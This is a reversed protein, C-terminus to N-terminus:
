FLGVRGQKAYIGFILIAVKATGLEMKCLAVGNLSNGVDVSAERQATVNRRCEHHTRLDIHSVALIICKCELIHVFSDLKLRVIGSIENVAGVHFIVEIVVEASHSVIVIGYSEFGGVDSCVEVATQEEGFHAFVVLSDVVETIHKAALGVVEEGSVVAGQKVCLGPLVAM